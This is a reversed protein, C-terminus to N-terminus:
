QCVGIVADAGNSGVVIEAGPYDCTIQFLDGPGLWLEHAGVRKAAQVSPASCALFFLALILTQCLVILNRKRTTM